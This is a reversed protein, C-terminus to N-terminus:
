WQPREDSYTCRAIRAYPKPVHYCLRFIEVVISYGVVVGSFAIAKQFKPIQSVWSVDQCPKMELHKGASGQLM